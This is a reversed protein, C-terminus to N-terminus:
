ALSHILSHVLLQWLGRDEPTHREGPGQAARTGNSPHALSWDKRYGGTPDLNTACGVARFSLVAAPRGPIPGRNGKAEAGPCDSRGEGRQSHCWGLPEVSSWGKRWRM